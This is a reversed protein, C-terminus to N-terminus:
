IKLKSFLHCFPDTPTVGSNLRLIRDYVPTLAFLSPIGAQSQFWPCVDSFTWFLLILPVVFIFLRRWFISVFSNSSQKFIEPCHYQLFPCCNGKVGSTRDCHCAGSPAVGGCHGVCSSPCQAYFDTCCDGRELCKHDCRCGSPAVGGCRGRCSVSFMHTIWIIETM